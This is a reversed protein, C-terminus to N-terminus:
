QRLPVVLRAASLQIHRARSSKEAQGMGGLCATISRPVMRHACGRDARKDDGAVLTHVDAAIKELPVSYEM